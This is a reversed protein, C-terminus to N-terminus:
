KLPVQPIRVSRVKVQVFRTGKEADTSLMVQLM